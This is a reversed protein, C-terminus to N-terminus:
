IAEIRERMEKKLEEDAFSADASNLLLMKIDESSLACYKKMNFLEDRLTVGCVSPDDTNITILVGKDILKRVPYEYLSPFIATNVNSTPCIELPIKKEVLEDIVCDDNVAMIGHGIRAAGMDIACQISDPGAAEGAHITFPIKKERAIRFLEVFDSTPFLAEAGALDIAVVGKGLYKEAVNITELNENYNDEARMLCLILNTYIPSDQCGGIAALVVEEQSLGKDTSKQLAFRIEAYMLGQKSLEKLLNSVALTIGEKTQLLSCPFAFKELFENLDACDPSVRLLKLLEREDSPVAIDQLKGLSRASEPSIAGDLHLHLDILCNLKKLDDM